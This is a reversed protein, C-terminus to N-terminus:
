GRGNCRKIDAEARIAAALAKLFLTLFLPSLPDGHKSGHKISFFPFIMGNTLVVARPDSYIVNEWKIFGKGFGLTKLTHRLFGRKVRDFAKEM